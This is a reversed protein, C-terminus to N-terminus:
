NNGNQRRKRRQIKRVRPLKKTAEVNKRRRVIKVKKTGGHKLANDITCEIDLLFFVQQETLGKKSQKSAQEVISQQWTSLLHLHANCKTLLDAEQIKTLDYKDGVAM